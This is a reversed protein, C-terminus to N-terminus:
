HSAIWRTEVRLGDLFVSLREGGASIPDSVTEGRFGATDTVGGLDVDKDPMRWIVPFTRFTYRLDGVAVDTMREVFLDGQDDLEGGANDFHLRDGYVRRMEEPTPGSTTPPSHQRISPLTRNPPKAGESLHRPVTHPRTRFGFDGPRPVVDAPSGPDSFDSFIARACRKGRRM